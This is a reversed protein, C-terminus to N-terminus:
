LVYCGWHMCHVTCMCTCKRMCVDFAHVCKYAQFHIHNQACRPSIFIHLFSFASHHHHHSSQHIVHVNCVIYLYLYLYICTWNASTFLFVNSIPTYTHSHTHSFVCSRLADCRTVCLRFINTYTGVPPRNLCMQIVCRMCTMVSEATQTYVYTREREYSLTNIHPRQIFPVTYIPFKEAILWFCRLVVCVCVNYIQHHKLTAFSM